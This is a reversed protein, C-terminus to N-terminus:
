EPSCCNRLLHPRFFCARSDACKAARLLFSSRRHTRRTTRIRAPVRGLITRRPLCLPRLSPSPFCRTKSPPLPHVQPHHRLFLMLREFYNKRVLSYYFFILILSILMWVNSWSLSTGSNGEMLNVAKEREKQLGSSKEQEGGGDGGGGDMRVRFTESLKEEKQERLPEKKVKKKVDASVERRLGILRKESLPELENFVNRNDSNGETDDDCEAVPESEKDKNLGRTESYIIERNATSSLQADESPLSPWILPPIIVRKAICSGSGDEKEREEDLKDSVFPVIKLPTLVNKDNGGDAVIDGAEGGDGKGDGRGRASGV